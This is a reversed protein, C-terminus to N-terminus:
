LVTVGQRALAFDRSHKNLVKMVSDANMRATKMEDVLEETAYVSYKHKYGGLHGQRSTMGPVAINPDPEATAFVIADHYVLVPYFGLSSYKDLNLLMAARAHGVMDAWWNLRAASLTSNMIQKIFGEAVYRAPECRFRASVRLQLRAEWLESAWKAFLKHGEEFVWAEQVHVEYNKQLALRLMPQTTWTDQRDFLRPLRAGDFKSGNSRWTIHYIGPKDPDAHGTIHHPNGVGTVMHSAASPHAAEKDYVHLVLGELKELSGTFLVDQDAQKFPMERLDVTPPKLYSQLRITAAYHKQLKAIGISQASWQVPVDLVQELYEVTALAEVENVVAWSFPERQPFGVYVQWGKGGEQWIRGGRPRKPRDKEPKQMQPVFINYNKRPTFFNYGLIDPSTGSLCWVHTIGHLQCAHWLDAAHTFVNHFYVATPRRLGDSGMLAYVLRTATGSDQLIAHRVEM